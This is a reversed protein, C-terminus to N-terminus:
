EIPHAELGVMIRDLEQMSYYGLHAPWDETKRQYYQFWAKETMEDKYIRIKAKEQRKKTIYTVIYSLWPIEIFHFTSSKFLYFISLTKDQNAVLYLLVRRLLVPTAEDRIKRSVSRLSHHINRKYPCIHEDALHFLHRCVIRQTTISPSSNLQVCRTSSFVTSVTLRHHFGHSASLKWTLRIDIEHNQWAHARGLRYLHVLSPERDLEITIDFTCLRILM